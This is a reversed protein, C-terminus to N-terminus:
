PKSDLCICNKRWTKHWFLTILFSMHLKYSMCSWLNYYSWHCTAIGGRTSKDRPALRLGRRPAPSITQHSATCPTTSCVPVPICYYNATKRSTVNSTKNRPARQRRIPARHKIVVCNNYSRTVIALFFLQLRM